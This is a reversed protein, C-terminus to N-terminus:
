KVEVGPEGRNIWKNSTINKDAAIKQCQGVAHELDMELRSLYYDKELIATEYEALKQKLTDLDQNRQELLQRQKAIIKQIYHDEANSSSM